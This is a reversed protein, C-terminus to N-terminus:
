VRHLQSAMRMMNDYHSGPWYFKDCTECHWFTDYRHIMEDPVHGRAQEPATKVLVTNCNLCRSLIKEPEISYSELVGMVQEDLDTTKLLISDSKRGCLERDRSIIVRNEANALRLIEDDDLGAQYITDFGLIRLRRALTGLMTDVIFKM